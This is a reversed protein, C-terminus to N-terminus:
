GSINATPVMGDPTGSDHGLDILAQEFNVDPVATTQSYCQTIQALAILVVFPKLGHLKM